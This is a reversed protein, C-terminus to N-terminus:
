LHKTRTGKSSVGFLICIKLWDAPIFRSCLSKELCYYIMDTILIVIFSNDMELIQKNKEIGQDNTIVKDTCFTASIIFHM